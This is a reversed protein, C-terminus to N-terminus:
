NYIFPKTFGECQTHIIHAVGAAGVQFALGNGEDLTALLLRGGKQTAM